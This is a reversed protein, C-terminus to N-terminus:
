SEKRYARFLEKVSEELASVRRELEAMKTVVMAKCGREDSLLTSTVDQVADLKAVVHAEMRDLRTENGVIREEQRKVDGEIRIIAVRVGLYAGFTSGVVTVVAIVLQIVDFISM